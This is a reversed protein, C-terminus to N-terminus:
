WEVACLAEDIVLEGLVALAKLLVTSQVVDPVVSRALAHAIIELQAFLSEM